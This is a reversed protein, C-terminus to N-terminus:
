GGSPVVRRYLSNDVASVVISRVTELMILVETHLEEYSELSIVSWRGHAVDNRVRLLNYDILRDKTAFLSFDLDFSNFLERCLDSNLNGQTNVERNPISVREAAGEILLRAVAVRRGSENLGIDSRAAHDAAMGAFAVSMESLRLKRRSVFRLYCGLANKTYGEWHAYLLAVGARIFADRASGRANRAQSLIAQSEIRRWVLDEDLADSM